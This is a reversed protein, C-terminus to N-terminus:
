AQVFRLMQVQQFLPSCTSASLHHDEMAVLASCVRSFQRTSIHHQCSIADNLALVAAINLRVLNGAFVAVLPELRVAQLDM